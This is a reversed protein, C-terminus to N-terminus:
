WIKDITVVQLNFNDRIDQLKPWYDIANIKSYRSLGNYGVVIEDGYVNRCLCKICCADPSFPPLHCRYWAIMNVIKWKTDKQPGRRIYECKKPDQVGLAHFMHITLPDNDPSELYYTDTLRVIDGIHLKLKINGTRTHTSDYHIAWPILHTNIKAM